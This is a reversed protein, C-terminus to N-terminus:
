GDAIIIPEPFGNDKLINHMKLVPGFAKDSEITREELNVSRIHGDYAHLGIPEIGKLSRCKKYLEIAEDGPIIGTRNMGVNLDIYVPIILNNQVADNAINKASFINDILCSYKTSPYKKILAIFRKLKPGAPQYALLVDPAGAMGLMEAEAITACKFKKIGANMQLEAAEKTKHTKVHPRLRKVNDIMSVLTGINELVRERYVVLAPSDIKDIDKIHYWGEKVEEKKKM